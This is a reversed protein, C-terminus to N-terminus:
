EEVIAVTGIHANRVAIGPEQQPIGDSDVEVVRASPFSPFVNGGYTFNVIANPERHAAYSKVEEGYTEKVMHISGPRQANGQEGVCAFLVYMNPHVATVTPQQEEEECVIELEWTGHRSELNSCGTALLASLGVAAATLRSVFRKQQEINSPQPRPLIDRMIIEKFKIDNYSKLM